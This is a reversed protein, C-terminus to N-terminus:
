ATAPRDEEQHLRSVALMSILKPELSFVLL